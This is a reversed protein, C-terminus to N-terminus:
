RDTPPPGCSDRVILRTKMLVQPEPINGDDILAQLMNIVQRSIEFIPQRVSTLAPRLYQVLPVDDYGIISLTKGVTHGLKEAENLAGIAILDNVTAIATPQEASPLKGWHQMADRGTQESQEGRWIYENRIAIGAERLVELYGDVRANGAVSGEPWAILAIRRHGLELLYKVAERMGQKGDTDVWAFDWEPNSRGFAVFPFDKDILFRLRPDNYNTDALVFADVRRTRILEDYVATLSDDKPHTFTLIHYGAAEAEQALFYMFRDLVSNVQGAPVEHWAYGILKSHRAKLNRANINPTYGVKEVAQWVIRRTEDSIAEDKNNIVYSVTAISVGAEQAVDKITAM